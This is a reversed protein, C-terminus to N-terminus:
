FVFVVKRACNQCINPKLCFLGKSRIAIQNSRDAIQNNHLDSLVFQVLGLLGQLVEALGLKQSSYGVKM